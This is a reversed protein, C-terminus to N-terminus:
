TDSAAIVNDCLHFLINSRCNHWCIITNEETIGKGSSNSSWPKKARRGARLYLSSEM